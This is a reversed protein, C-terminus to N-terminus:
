KCKCAKTYQLTYDDKADGLINYMKRNLTNLTIDSFILVTKNKKDITFEM